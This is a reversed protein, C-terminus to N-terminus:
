LHIEMGYDEYKKVYFITRWEVEPVLTFHLSSCVLHKNYEESDKLAIFIASPRDAGGIVAVCCSSIENSTSSNTEMRKPKDGRACDQIRFEEQPLESSISYTLVTYYNPFKMDKNFGFSKESLTTTKCDYITIKYEQKCVPHICMIEKRDCSVETNFNRFISYFVDFGYSAFEM